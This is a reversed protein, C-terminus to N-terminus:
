LAAPAWAATAIAILVVASLAVAEIIRAAWKHKALEGAATAHRALLSQPLIAEPSLGLSEMWEWDEGSAHRGMRWCYDLFSTSAFTMVRPAATSASTAMEMRDLEMGKFAQCRILSLHPSARVSVMSASGPEGAGARVGRQYMVSREVELAEMQSVPVPASGYREIYEWELRFFGWVMRRVIETAAMVTQFNSYIYSYVSSYSPSLRYL